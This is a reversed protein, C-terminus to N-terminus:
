GGEFTFHRLILFPEERSPQHFLAISDVPIPENLVDGFTETLIRLVNERQDEAVSKTLTMHFRFDEFIYPYGWERLHDMQRETLRGGKARRELDAENLPEGYSHFAKILDSHLRDLPESRAPPCLALFSGLTTVQLPLDFPQRDKAFAELDSYLAEVSAGKALSFPAVMTAHFGYGAAKATLEEVVEPDLETDLRDLSLGTAADRGLWASARKWLASEPDPTFYIAYRESM